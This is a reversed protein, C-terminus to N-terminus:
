ALQSALIAIGEDFSRPSYGLLDQAKKIVLGTKPPRAATQKFVSGDVKNILNKDLNFFTATKIAMQYPTLLDAGGINYIGEAKQKAMLICGDALDEALTPTRYQDDVVNINKGAELSNKVWLVINSRSMDAVIGFVLITRAIGFSAGSNILAKEAAYKSWGYFSIPNPTDLESYPGSKGDFIFDTSVHCMYTGHAKCSEALYQVALVNQQWCNEKDTECQDVNTMAATHILMDPVTSSLVDNIASADTIDLPLYTYGTKLPNRNQGKGTAILTTNPDSALKEVLKQGLLGNAGTILIKM